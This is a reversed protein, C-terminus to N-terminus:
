CTDVICGAADVALWSVGGSGFSCRIGVAPCSSEFFPVSNRSAVPFAARM